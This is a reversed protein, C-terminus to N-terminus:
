FLGLISGIPAVFIGIIRMVEMIGFESIPVSVQFLKVINLFWGVIGAVLLFLFILQGIANM